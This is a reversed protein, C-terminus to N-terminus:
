MDEVNLVRVTVRVHVQVGIGDSLTKPLVQVAQKTVYFM